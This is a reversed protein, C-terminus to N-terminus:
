YLDRATFGRTTASLEGANQSVPIAATRSRTFVSPDEVTFWYDITDEDVRRYREVLRLTPRAAQGGRAWRYEMKDAYNVTEVVLTDGDWHGRSGGLWQRVNPGMHLWEDLPILHRNGFM